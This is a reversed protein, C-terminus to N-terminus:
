PNPPAGTGFGFGLKDRRVRQKGESHKGADNDGRAERVFTTYMLAYLHAEAKSFYASARGSNDSVVM